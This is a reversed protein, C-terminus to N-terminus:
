LSLAVVHECQEFGRLVKRHLFDSVPPHRAFGNKPQISHKTRCPNPSYTPIHVGMRTCCPKSIKTHCSVQILVHNCKTKTQHNLRASVNRHNKSRHGEHRIIQIKLLSWKELKTGAVGGFKPSIWKGGSKPGAIQVNAGLCCFSLLFNTITDARALFLHSPSLWWNNCPLYPLCAGQWVHACVCVHLCPLVKSQMDGQNQNWLGSPSLLDSNLPGHFQCRCYSEKPQM